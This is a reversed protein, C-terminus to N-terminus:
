SLDMRLEQGGQPVVKGGIFCRDGIGQNDPLGVLRHDPACQDSYPGMRLSLPGAVCLFKKSLEM